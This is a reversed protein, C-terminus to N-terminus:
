QLGSLGRAYLEFIGFFFQLFAALDGSSPVTPPDVHDKSLSSPVIQHRELHGRLCRGRGRLFRGERGPPLGHELSYKSKTSIFLHTSGVKEM